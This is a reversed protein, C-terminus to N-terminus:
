REIFEARRTGRGRGAVELGQDRREVSVQATTGGVGETSELLHAGRLASESGAEVDAAARPTGM